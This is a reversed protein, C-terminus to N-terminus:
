TKKRKKTKNQKKKQSFGAINVTKSDEKGFLYIKEFILQEKPEIWHRPILYAFVDMSNPM